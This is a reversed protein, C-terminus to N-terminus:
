RHDLMEVLDDYAELSRDTGATLRLELRDGQGEIFVHAGPEIARAERLVPPLTLRGQSDVAVAHFQRRITEISGANLIGDREQAAVQDLFVKFQENPWLAISRDRWPGIYATSAFAVRWAGAPLVIRGKDDVLRDQGGVLPDFATDQTAHLRRSVEPAEVM